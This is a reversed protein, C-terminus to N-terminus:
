AVVEGSLVNLINKILEINKYQRGHGQGGRIEEVIKTNTKINLPEGEYNKIKQGEMSKTPVICDNKERTLISLPFGNKETGFFHHNSTNIKNYASNLKLLYQSKPSMVSLGRLPKGRKEFYYSVQYYLTNTASPLLFFYRLSRVVSALPTGTNPANVSIFVKIFNLELKEYKVLLARAVLAGRSTAIVDVEAAEFGCAKIMSDVKEANEKIDRNITPYNVLYIEDKYIGELEDLMDKNNLMEWFGQIKKQTGQFFLLVRKGNVKSSANEGFQHHISWCEKEWVKRKITRIKENNNRVEDSEPPFYYRTNKTYKREKLIQKAKQLDFKRILYKNEKTFKEMVKQEDDIKTVVVHRYLQYSQINKTDTLTSRISIEETSEASKFISEFEDPLITKDAEISVPLTGKRSGEKQNTRDLIDVVKDENVFLEKGNEIKGNSEFILVDHEQEYIHNPIEIKHVEEPSLNRCVYCNLDEYNISEFQM